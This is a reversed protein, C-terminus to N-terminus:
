TRLDSFKAKVNVQGAIQPQNLPQTCPIPRALPPMLMADNVWGGATLRIIRSFFSEPNVMRLPVQARRGIRPSGASDLELWFYKFNQNGVTTVEGVPKLQFKRNAIPLPRNPGCLLHRSLLGASGIGAFHSDCLQLAM